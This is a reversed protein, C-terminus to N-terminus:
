LSIDSRSGYVRVRVNYLLISHIRLVTCQTHRVVKKLLYLLLTPHYKFLLCTRFQLGELSYM